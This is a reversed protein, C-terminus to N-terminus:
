CVSAKHCRQIFAQVSAPFLPSQLGFAGQLPSLGTLARHRHVVGLLQRSCSAPSRSTLCHLATEMEQNKRETQGVAWLHGGASLSVAHLQISSKTLSSM